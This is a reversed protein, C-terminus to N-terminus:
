SVVGGRELAELTGVSMKSATGLHGSRTLLTSNTERAVNGSRGWNGVAASM